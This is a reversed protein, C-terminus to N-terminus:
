KMNAWGINRTARLLWVPIGFFAWVAVSAWILCAVKRGAALVNLAHSLMFVTVVLSCCLRMASLVAQLHGSRAARVPSPLRLSYEKLDPFPDSLDSDGRSMGGGVGCGPMAKLAFRLQQWVSFHINYIRSVGAAQTIARSAARYGHKLLVDTRHETFNLTGTLMSGLSTQPLIQTVKARSLIQEYFTSPLAMGLALSQQHLVSRLHEILDLNEPRLRIIWIEDVAHALLPIFPTNDAVGGDVFMHEGVQVSPLIGFPLAASAYALAAKLHVPAKDLRVYTAAFTGPTLILFGPSNPETEKAITAYIPTAIPKSLFKLLHSALLKGEMMTSPFDLALITLAVFFLITVTSQWPISAAKRGILEIPLAPGVIAFLVRFTGLWLFSNMLQNRTREDWGNRLFAPLAICPVLLLGSLWFWLSPLLGYLLLWLLIGLVLSFFADREIQWKGEPEIGNLYAAFLKGAVLTIKIFRRFCGDSRKGFFSSSNISKWVEEGESVSDTAWISACLAGASTGSVVDFHIGHDQFAKMCGLAFAGKGGGGEIVLGREFHQPEESM